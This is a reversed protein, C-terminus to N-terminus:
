QGGVAIFFGRVPFGSGLRQVEEFIKNVQMVEDNRTPTVTQTTPPAHLVRQQQAQKSM